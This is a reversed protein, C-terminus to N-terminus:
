KQLNSIDIQKCAPESEAWSRLKQMIGGVAGQLCRATSDCPFLRTWCRYRQWGPSREGCQACASPRSPVAAAPGLRAEREGPPVATPTREPLHPHLLPPPLGARAQDIDCRIGEFNPEVVKWGAKSVFPKFSAVM